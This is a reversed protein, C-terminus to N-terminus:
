NTAENGYMREYSKVEDNEARKIWNCNACLLQYKNPNESIEKMKFAPNKKLKIRRDLYGKGDVHDVQLARYDTFGCHVCKGGMLDKLKIVAARHRFKASERVKKNIAKDLKYDMKREISTRLLIEKKNKHYRALASAAYKERNKHYFDRWYKRQAIAGVM